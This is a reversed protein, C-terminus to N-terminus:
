ITKTTILNEMSVDYINVKLSSTEGYAVFVFENTAAIKPRRADEITIKNNFQISSIEGGNFSGCSQSEDPKEETKGCNNSDTCTRTQAGDKCELWETCLWNETCVSEKVCARGIRAASDPYKVDPAKCVLGSCCKMSEEDGCFENEKKCEGSLPKCDKFCNNNQKESPQCIGDGCKDHNIIVKTCGALILVTFVLLITFLIKNYM